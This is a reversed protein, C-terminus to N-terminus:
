LDYDGRLLKIFSTKGSKSDGIVIITRKTQNSITPNQQNAREWFNSNKIDVPSRIM